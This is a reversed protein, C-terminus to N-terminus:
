PNYSASRIAVGALREHQAVGSKGGSSRVRDLLDKASSTFQDSSKTSFTPGCARIRTPPSSPESSKWRSSNMDFSSAHPHSRERSRTRSIEGDVDVAISAPSVFDITSSKPKDFGRSIKGSNEAAAIMVNFALDDYSMGAQHSVSRDRYAAPDLDSLRIPILARSDPALPIENYEGEEFPTKHGAEFDLSPDSRHM